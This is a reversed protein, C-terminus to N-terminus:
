SSIAQAAVALVGCILRLSDELLPVGQDPIMCGRVGFRPLIHFLVRRLTCFRIQGWTRSGSLAM